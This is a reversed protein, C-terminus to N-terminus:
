GNADVIAVLNGMADYRYQTRPAQTSTTGNALTIQTSPDQKAILKGLTNYEFRTVNGRGDTESIVEGFANYSQQRIITSESNNTGVIVWQLQLTESGDGRRLYGEVQVALGDRGKIYEGATDKLQYRYEYDGVALAEVSLDFGGGANRNLSTEIWDEQSGKVRYSLILQQAQSQPPAFHVTVPLDLPKAEASAIAGNQASFSGGAQNVMLGQADFLQYKFDYSGNLNAVNASNWTWYSGEKTLPVSTYPETASRRYLLVGRTAAKNLTGTISLVSPKSSLQYTVSNPNDRAFYGGSSGLSQGNSNFTELQYEWNLGPALGYHFPYFQFWGNFLPSLSFFTTWENTQPNRFRIRGSAAQSGLGTINIASSGEMYAQGPGGTALSHNNSAAEYQNAQTTDFTVLTGPTLFPYGDRGAFVVLTNHRSAAYNNIAPDTTPTFPKNQLSLQGSQSSLITNDAALALYRYEYNDRPLSSGNLAFENYGTKEANYTTWGDNSNKRRLMVLLRNARPDQQQFLIQQNNQLLASFQYNSLTRLSGDGLSPDDRAIQALLVPSPLSGGQKYVEIQMYINASQAAAPIPWRMSLGALTTQQEYVGSIGNSSSWKARVLYSSGAPLPPTFSFRLDVGLQTFPYSGAYGFYGTVLGGQNVGIANNVSSAQLAAPKAPQTSVYGGESTQPKVSIWSELRVSAQDRANVMKPQYTGILQNRADYESMTLRLGAAEISKPDKMLSIIQEQTLGRLDTKDSEFSLTAKGNADYLWARTVGNLNNKLIRGAGDYEAFEQWDGSGSNGTRKAEIDGWANYRTEYRMGTALDRREIQQGRADYRYVTTDTVSSGDAQQRARSTRSINGAIDYNYHSTQGKADTHSLLLGGTGYQYRQIQDDAESDNDLGRRLSRSLQDLANYESDTTPRVSQGQYDVFAAEQHRTERGQVDYQWDAIGGNADTKQTVKGLGNYQYRTTITVLSQATGNQSAVAVNLRREAIVQGMLDYDYESIRDDLSTKLAAELNTTPTSASLTLSLKTAYRTHRLVQGNANYAWRSAYGAADVSLTQRGLADYYHYTSNGRADIQQIVNGNADYVQRTTLDQLGVVPNGSEPDRQGTQQKPIITAILRNNADYQYQTVRVNNANSAAAVSGDAPLAIRDGYIKQQIINGNADYEWETLVGDASREATKRGLADYRSRTVHGNVDTVEILNGLTDYRYSITPTVSQEGKDLSYVNVTDNIQRILRNNADYEYRTTRQEPRGYAEIQLTRNGHADYEFRKISGLPSIEELVRGLADYRYTYTGGLKNVYGTKHGFADYSLTESYGNSDRIATQRGLADYSFSSIRDRAADPTLTPPTDGLSSLNLATAYRIIRSVNGFADYETATAYGQPDISLIPRNQADFYFRGSHGRPDTVRSANGFADYQQVTVNGLADTRQTERGLADYQYRTTHGSADTVSLKNGLGDLEYSTTLKLQDGDGRSESILRGASDYRYRTTPAIFQEIADDPLAQFSPRVAFLWSDAYGPYTNGKRLVARASVAGPPAIGQAVTYKYGALSQGGYKENANQSAITDASSGIVEGAANLWLIHVSVTARHAGTYVSFAYRQGAKIKGIDQVLEQQSNAANVSGPNYQQLYLTNEGPLRQDLMSWGNLNSGPISRAGFAQHRWGAPVNKADSQGFFANQLTAADDLKQFSPRVAFLWSDACGPYTNGKRLVARASVAGPPAVGEAVTHKYGTLNQGGYKENANQSAPTDASSGIVEGAANLWLIHVSVTARHAGTYASFTYRQGVKIFGIDQVLEQQSKTANAPVPTSQQLSVTNEGLLKQNSLMWDPHHNIRPTAAAGLSQYRWGAPVSQADPQGFLTNQLTAAEDPLQQFFPRVAFLFSNVSGPYTNGKRLVARASVAGPPAMGEALTYKYDVLRTGGSKENVNQSAGTDASSGIVEGAANLWLIHVSVTANIGGTYASFSYHQGAKIFDIDQVLEQQSKTANAPAPTSQHLVVTNEGFLNQNSLMWDPHHNIGPTAAAGLSQYRWGAPVRQADPQGFLTNQLASHNSLLQSPSSRRTAIVNSLADYQYDTTSGDAAIQRAIRGAADYETQSVQDQAHKLFVPLGANASDQPSSLMEFRVRTFFLYSDVHGVATNDKRIIVQASVAGPPAIGEAVTYKYGALNRGGYKEYANQSTPTDITNGIIQGTANLWVIYVSGTARHSGTYASFAYRQGAIVSPITQTLEASSIAGHPGQVLYLTNEGPLPNNTLTWDSNLNSGIRGGTGFDQYTWGAPVGEADPQGFLPNQLKNVGKQSEIQQSAEQMAQQILAYRRSEIVQGLADYRKETVYGAADVSYIARGASDYVTRDIRDNAGAQTQSASAYRHSSMVNGAADYRYETAYGAANRSLTLRGAADYSASDTQDKAHTTPTGNFAGTVRTAYRTTATRHGSADYRYGSLNGLADLSYSLRGDQDYFRQESRDTSHTNLQAKLADASSPASSLILATAYRITQSVRGNADYRTETVSGAADISYQLQNNANYVYDHRHGNADTKQILNNNADYAYRTTLQLGTPDVTERILRGQKDYEYDTTRAEPTGAGETRSLTNGSEDYRYTTTLKLGKADRIQSILQGKADYQSETVSGNADTLRLVRGLADYETQSTLKLGDPDVTRSLVRGVADYQYVTKTGRADLTEILQGAHNYTNKTTQGLADSRSILQGDHDYQYTQSYGRGDTINVTEGFQNLQSRTQIGGPSTTTVTGSQDDYVTTTTQGLADTQSLLRGFADYSSRRLNGLADTSVIQRGLPDYQLPQRYGRADTSDILRGFADYVQSRQLGADDSHTLLGRRDYQSSQVRGNAYTSSLSQGFANYVWRQSIVGLADTQSLLNGAQDYRFLTRQDAKNSLSQLIAALTPNLGGGLTTLQESSLRTSYRTTDSIDGLANYHTESIEGLANISHTLRGNADYYYLTRGGSGNLGNPTLTATRRGAADYQHQSGWRQWIANIQAQSPAGGLAALAQAGEGSLEAILRGQSDYRQLQRRVEGNSAIRESRLLQGQSDYQYRTILGDPQRTTQILQGAADYQYLTGQDNAHAAPRLSNLSEGPKAPNAYRLSQILQGSRDYRNETLYGAADLHAIARGQGDYLTRSHQDDADAAPRLQTLNGTAWESQPSKQAYRLTEILQGAGDYRYESLYGEGDLSAIRQGDANYFLRTVRDQARNASVQTTSDDISLEGRSNHLATQQSASLQNAYAIQGLLQGQGDYQYDIVAGHGDISRLLQGAADIIQYSHRDDASAAPRLSDLTLLSLETSLASAPIL